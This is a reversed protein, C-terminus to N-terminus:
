PKDRKIQPLLGGIQAPGSQNSQSIQMREEPPKPLAPAENLQGAASMRYVSEGIKRWQSKRISMDSSDTCCIDLWGGDRKVIEWGLEGVYAKAQEHNYSGFKSMAECIRAVAMNVVDEERVGPNVLDRIQGPMPFTRSKPDEMYKNLADLVRKGDLDMLANAMLSISDKSFQRGYIESFAILTKIVEIREM